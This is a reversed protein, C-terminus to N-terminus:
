DSYEGIKRLVTVKKTKIGIIYLSEKDRICRRDFKLLGDQRRM